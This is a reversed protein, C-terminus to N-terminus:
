QQQMQRCFHMGGTLADNQSLCSHHAHPAPPVHVKGDRIDQLHHASRPPRLIVAVAHCDDHHMLGLLREIFLEEVLGERDLGAQWVLDPGRVM